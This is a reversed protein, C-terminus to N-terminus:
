GPILHYVIDHTPDCNCDSETEEAVRRRHEAEADRAVQPVAVQGHPVSLGLRPPLLQCPFADDALQGAM